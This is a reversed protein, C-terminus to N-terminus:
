TEKSVPAQPSPYQIGRRHSSELVRLHRGHGLHHRPIAPPDQAFRIARLYGVLFWFPVSVLNTELYPQFPMAVLYVVVAAITGDCWARLDPDDSRRRVAAGITGIMLALFLFLGASGMQIALSFLSNHFNRIEIVYTAEFGSTPDRFSFDLTQGFGVGLFPSQTFRAKGIKWLELRWLASTDKDVNGFSVVRAIFPDVLRGLRRGMSSEPALLLVVFLAIGVVLGALVVPQARRLLQRQAARPALVIVAFVGAALAIWLHRMLSVLVGAFSAVLGITIGIRSTSTKAIWHAFLVVAAIALFLAHPFALLRVGATSLPTFETMLGEGRVVGILLFGVAVAAAGLFAYGVRAVEHRDRVALLMILVSLIPYFAYNKFTSFSVVADGAGSGLVDFFSLMALASFLILGREVWGFPVRAADPTGRLARLRQLMLGAVTLALVIDLLYLKVIMTATLATPKLGVDYPALALLLLAGFLGARPAVGIALGSIVTALAVAGFPLAADGASVGLAAGMSAVVLATMQVERDRLFTIVLRVFSSLTDRMHESTYWLFSAGYEADFYKVSCFFRAIRSTHVMRADFGVGVDHGSLGYDFSRPDRHIHYQALKCRSQCRLLNKFVIRVQGDLIDMSGNCVGRLQHFLFRDIRQVSLM